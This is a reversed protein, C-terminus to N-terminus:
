DLTELYAVLAQLEDEALATPPMLNGPKSHQPDIIWRALIAQENPLIGAALTRRSAIHTLDPGLNGAAGIGRVTHCHACGAVLFLQVGRQALPEAPVEAAAQQQVLWADFEAQPQAVVLFTMKAHQVGCFEACLGKYVGANDAQLWFSNTQNPIMDLKGHLEPVWFSHIVDQTTLRVTVPRGVPLHLENATVVNHGPYRM